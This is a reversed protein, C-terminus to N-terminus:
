SKKCIQSINDFLPRLSSIDMGEDAALEYVELINSDIADAYGKM